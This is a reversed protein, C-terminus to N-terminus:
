FVLNGASFILLFLSVIRKLVIPKTEYRVISLIRQKTEKLYHMQQMHILCVYITEKLHHMQKLFFFCCLGHNAYFVLIAVHFTFLPCVKWGRWYFLVLISLGFSILFNHFYWAVLVNIIFMGNGLCNVM